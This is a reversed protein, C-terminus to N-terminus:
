RWLCPVKLWLLVNKGVPLDIIFCLKLNKLVYKNNKYISLPFFYKRLVDTRRANKKGRVAFM